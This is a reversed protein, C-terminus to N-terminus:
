CELKGHNIISRISWLSKQGNYIEEQNIKKRQKKRVNKMFWALLM